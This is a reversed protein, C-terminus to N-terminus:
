LSRLSCCNCCSAVYSLLSSHHWGCRSGGVPCVWWCPYNGVCGILWRLNCSRVSSGRRVLLGVRILKGGAHGVGNVRERDATLCSCGVIALRGTHGRWDGVGHGIRMILGSRHVCCGWVNWKRVSPWTFNQRFLNFWCNQFNYWGIKCSVFLCMIIPIPM